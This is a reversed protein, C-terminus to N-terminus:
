KACRGPSSKRESSAIFTTMGATATPIASANSRSRGSLTASIASATEGTGGIRGPVCSLAPPREDYTTPNSAVAASTDITNTGAAAAAIPRIKPASTRVAGDAIAHITPVEIRAGNSAPTTTARTAGASAARIAPGSACTAVITSTTANKGTSSLTQGAITPENPM